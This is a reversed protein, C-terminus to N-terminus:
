WLGEFLSFYIFCFIFAFANLARIAIAKAILAVTTGIEWLKAAPSDKPFDHGVSPTDVPVFDVESM